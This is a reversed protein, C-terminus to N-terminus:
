GNKNYDICISFIPKEENEKHSQYINDIINVGSPALGM